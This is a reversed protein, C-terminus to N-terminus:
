VCLAGGGQRFNVFGCWGEFVDVDAVDCATVSATYERHCSQGFAGNLVNDHLVEVDCSAVSRFKTMHAPEFHAVTAKVGGAAVEEAHAVDAVGRQNFNMAGEGLAIDDFFVMAVGDTVVADDGTNFVSSVCFAFLGENKM